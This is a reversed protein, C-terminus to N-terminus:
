LFKQDIAIKLENITNDINESVDQGEFVWLFCECPNMRDPSTATWSLGEELLM